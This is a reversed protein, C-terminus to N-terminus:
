YAAQQSNILTAQILHNPSGAGSLWATFPLKLMIEATASAVNPTEGTFQAVPILLILKRTSTGLATGDFELSIIADTGNLYDNVLSQDTFYAEIEGSVEIGGALQRQIYRSGLFGRKNFNGSKIDVKASKLPVSVGSVTFTGTHYVLPMQTTYTPTVGTAGSTGNKCSVTATAKLVQGETGTFSLQDFTSGVFDWVNTAVNADRSVLFSYSPILTADTTPVFIHSGGNGAGLTTYTESPLIGKLAQGLLGEVDVDFNIAGGASIGGPVKQQTIERTNAIPKGMLYNVKTKLSEQTIMQSTYGSGPDIGWTVEKVCSLYGQHGLAGLATM